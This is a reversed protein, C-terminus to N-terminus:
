AEPTDDPVAAPAPAALQKLADVFAATLMDQTVPQDAKNIAAVLPPLLAAALKAPNGATAIAAMQQAHSAAIMDHLHQYEPIITKDRLTGVDTLVGGKKLAAIVEAASVDDDGNGGAWGPDNIVNLDTGPVPSQGVVQYLVAYAYAGYHGMLPNGDDPETWHDSWSGASAQWLKTIGISRARELNRDGAYCGPVFFSTLGDRFGRTYDLSMVGGTDAAFYGVEGAAHGDDKMMQETLQGDARGDTYSGTMARGSVDEFVRRVIVGRQRYADVEARTPCKTADRSCYLIIGDGPQLLSPDPRQWSADFVRPM